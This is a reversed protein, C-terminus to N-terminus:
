DVDIKQLFEWVQVLVNQYQKTNFHNNAAWNYGSKTEDAMDLQTEM